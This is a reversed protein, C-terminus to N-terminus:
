CWEASVFCKSTTATKTQFSRIQQAPQKAPKKRTESKDALAVKKLAQLTNPKPNKEVVRAVMHQTKAKPLRQSSRVKTFSSLKSKLAALPKRKVSKVPAIAQDISQPLSEVRMPSEYSAAANGCKDKGPACNPLAAIQGDTDPGIEDAAGAQASAPQVVMVDRTQTALLDRARHLWAAQLENIQHALGTDIDAAYSDIAQAAELWCSARDSQEDTEKKLCRDSWLQILSTLGRAPAATSGPLLDSKAEVPNGPAALLPRFLCHVHGTRNDREFRLFRDATIKQCYASFDSEQEPTELTGVVVCIQNKEVAFPFLDNCSAASAQGAAMFMHLFPAAAALLRLSTIV